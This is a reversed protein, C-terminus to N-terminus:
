GVCPNEGGACMQIHYTLIMPIREVKTPADYVESFDVTGVSGCRSCWYIDGKSVEGIHQWDHPM